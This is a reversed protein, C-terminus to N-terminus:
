YNKVGKTDGSILWASLQKESLHPVAASQQRYSQATKKNQMYLQMLTDKQKNYAQEYVMQEYTGSQMLNLYTEIKWPSQSLFEAIEPASLRSDVSTLYTNPSSDPEVSKANHQFLTLILAVALSFMGASTLTNAKGINFLRNPSRQTLVLDANKMTVFLPATNRTLVFDALDLQSLQQAFRIPTLGHKRPRGIVSRLLSWTHRPINSPRKKALLLKKWAAQESDGIFLHGALMALSYVDDQPDAVTTKLYNPSAYAPSLEIDTSSERACRAAGFDILKVSDDETLIVNSPKIDLHCIGKSHMYELAGAVQYILWAIHDARFGKGQHRNLKQSLSEGEAWQYMLYPRDFETGLKIFDVVAPHQSLEMRTAEEVLMNCALESAGELPVKCCFHKEPESEKVLHYLTTRGNGPRITEIIEFQSLLVRELKPSQKKSLNRQNAKKKDIAKSVLRNIFGNELHQAESM